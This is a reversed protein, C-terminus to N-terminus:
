FVRGRLADTPEVHAIRRTPLYSVLATLALVVLVTSVVVDAAFVPYLVDGLAFGYSDTAEPLHWGTRAFWLLFPIGYLAALLLSLVGGFAGELAFLRVVERRTMGLAVLTGIERQRKFISFIQTDFIALLALFLLIAYVFTSGLAKSRILARIDALLERAEKPVWAAGDAAAVPGSAALDTLASAAGPAFVVLTAADPLDTMRRLWDLPVWITRADAFQV